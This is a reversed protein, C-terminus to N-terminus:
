VPQADCARFPQSLPMSPSWGDLRVVINSIWFFDLLNPHKGLGICFSITQHDNQTSKQAERPTNRLPEFTRFHWNFCM